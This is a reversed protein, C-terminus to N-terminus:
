AVLRSDSGTIVLSTDDAFLFLLLDGILYNLDNTHLIFFLPGLCSGQPVGLECDLLFDGDGSSVGGPLTVHQKRGELYSRLFDNTPGRFGYRECKGLFTNKELTDFASSFDLFVCAALKGQINAELVEHLLNLVAQGTDCGRRFGFQKESILRCQEVFGSMRAFILKEFVKNLLPLVCIPRYNSMKASDGKKYVPVVRGVKLARPYTSQRVSLNFLDAM